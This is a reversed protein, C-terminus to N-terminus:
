ETFLVEVIEKAEERSVVRLAGTSCYKACIPDGNCFDCKVCTDYTEDFFPISNPCAYICSRCGICRLKDIKVIGSDPDKTIAKPEAPCAAECAPYECHTCFVNIFSGPKEEDEYVHLFAKNLDIIGYHHFSCAIMCYMCGSCKGPDYILVRQKLINTKTSLERDIEFM